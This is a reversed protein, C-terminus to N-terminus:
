LLILSMLLVARELVTSLRKLPQGSKDEDFPVKDGNRKIVFIQNNNM